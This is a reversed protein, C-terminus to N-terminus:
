GDIVTVDLRLSLATKIANRTGPTDGKRFAVAHTANSLMLHNRIPGAAKGKADWDQQSVLYGRFPIGRAGAYKAALTDAGKAGGSIITDPRGNAEIWKDLASFLLESDTWERSGVVALVISNADRTACSDDSPGDM